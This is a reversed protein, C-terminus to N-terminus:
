SKICLIPRGFSVHTIKFEGKEVLENILANIAKQRRGKLAGFFKSNAANSHFDNNEITRSGFLIKTIGSKGYMGSFESVCDIIIQKAEEDSIKPRDDDDDDLNFSLQAVPEVEGVEELNSYFEAVRSDVMVKDKSFNRLYLGELTKVRSMAVYAQGREFIRSCDVVLKDLTMGQSKHITIGYALKLPFQTREAYLKDHYYYEFKHKPIDAVEGNDFKITVTNGNFSQIMGCSGNILGRNFDMNVLLMVKAGLKLTLSKDARCNKGFIDLVYNENETFGSYVPKTGRYVGDEAEFIKVPEDIMNFKAMNYRDAEFNTSFIHLMNTEFTDFNTERTKLLEIDDEDLCNTRMDSLAKIFKAESQRFNQKLVVNKLKFDEWVPSDFCYRRQHESFTDDDFLSYEQNNSINVGNVGEVPPLQYFDGIFLVQIGGFPEVSERIIKLVEDVYEFTEINLMSIEDIALIKCNLIQKLTSTRQRIKEVTKYIPNKCLGVGAWSHLTQGKVNVAAIGTTSTITLKKKLKEKLKNLIYSKGTGAYGTLFVNEGNMLLTLVKKYEESDQNSASKIQSDTIPKIQTIEKKKTESIVEFEDAYEQEKTFDIQAFNLIRYECVEGKANIRTFVIPKENPKLENQLKNESIWQTSNFGRIRKYCELIGQTIAQFKRGDKNTHLEPIKETLKVASNTLEQYDTNESTLYGLLQAPNEFSLEMIIKIILHSEKVALSNTEFERLHIRVVTPLALIKLGAM